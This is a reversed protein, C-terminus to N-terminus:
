LRKVPSQTFLPVLESKAKQVSIETRNFRQMGGSEFCSINYFYWLYM